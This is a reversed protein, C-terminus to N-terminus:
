RQSQRPLYVSYTHYQNQGSKEHKIKHKSTNKSSIEKIVNLMWTKRVVVRHPIIVPGGLKLGRFPM